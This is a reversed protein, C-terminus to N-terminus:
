SVGAKGTLLEQHVEKLTLSTPHGLTPALSPLLRVGAGEGKIVLVLVGKISSAEQAKGKTRPVMRQCCVTVGGCVRM